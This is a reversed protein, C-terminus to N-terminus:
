RNRVIAPLKARVAPCGQDPGDLAGIKQMEFTASVMNSQDQEDLFQVEEKKCRRAAKWDDSTCTIDTADWDELRLVTCSHVRGEASAELTNGSLVDCSDINVRNSGITRLAVSACGLRRDIKTSMEELAVPLYSLTEGSMGSLAVQTTGGPWLSLGPEGDDEADVWRDPAVDTFAKPWPDNLPDDLKLGQVVASRPSTFTSGPLANTKPLPIESAMVPPIRDFIMNPTSSSYTENYLPSYIEPAVDSGCSKKDVVIKTGDYRYKYLEWISAYTVSKTVLVQGAAAREPFILTADQRVAWWGSLDCYCAETTGDGAYGKPCRCDYGGRTNVCMVSSDGARCTATGNACEDVDACSLGDPQNVYGKNCECTYGPTKDMCKSNPDCRDTEQLCEDVNVCEGASNREFGTKCECVYSGPTNACRSTNADCEASGSTCENIDECGAMPDGDFGPRCACSRSGSSGGCVTNPGCNLLSCESNTTCRQGDGVSESNCSTCGAEGKPNIVCYGRGNPDCLEPDAQAAECRDRCQLTGDGTYLTDCVCSFSDRTTVCHANEACKSTGTACEDVRICARGDGEYGEGCSCMVGGTADLSCAAAAHCTNEAGVCSDLSKCTDGDLGFGPKCRCTFTGVRNECVANADCDNDTARACEDIDICRGAEDRYGKPCICMARSVGREVSEVCTAPSKCMLEACSTAVPAGADDEDDIAADRRPGGSQPTGCAMVMLACLALWACVRTAAGYPERERLGASGLYSDHPISTTSARLPATVEIWPSSMFNELQADRSQPV